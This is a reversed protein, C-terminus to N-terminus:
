PQTSHLVRRHVWETELESQSVLDTVEGPVGGTVDVITVGMLAAEARILIEDEESVETGTSYVTPLGAGGPDFSGVPPGTAIFPM